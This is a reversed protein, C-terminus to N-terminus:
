IEDEDSWRDYYHLNYDDMATPKYQQDTTDNDSNSDSNYQAKIQMKVSTNKDVKRQKPYEKVM